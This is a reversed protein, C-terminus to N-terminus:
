TKSTTVSSHQRLEVPKRDTQDFVTWDERIPRACRDSRCAIEKATSGSFVTQSKFERKKNSFSPLAHDEHGDVLLPM